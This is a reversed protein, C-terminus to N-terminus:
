SLSQNGESQPGTNAQYQGRNGKEEEGKVGRKRCECEDKIMKRKMQGHKLMEEDRDFGCM